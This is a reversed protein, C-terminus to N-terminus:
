KKLNDIKKIVFIIIAIGYYINENVNKLEFLTPFQNIYMINKRWERINMSNKSKNQYFIDGQEYNLIGFIM